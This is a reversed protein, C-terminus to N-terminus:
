LVGWVHGAVFDCTKEDKFAMDWSIYKKMGKPLAHYHRIKTVPIINGDAPAPRQQYLSTFTRPAKAKIKMMRSKSHRQPWLAAGIERKDEPVSNGEEFLAPLVVVTWEDGDRAILRGALDDEHWRTLTLLQQSDNHLRSEVEDVYWDWVTQRQTESHAAQHGKIPDDVLAHDLTKGTIAGSVGVSLSYGLHEQLEYFDSRNSLREEGKAAGIRTEPFLEKYEKSAITRKNAVNFGRSLGANYSMIGIKTDPDRGHLFAPLKRSALESKGHQPPMCLILKKIEGRAYKDLYEAVIRHHANIKYDKKTYATFGILHERAHDKIEENILAELEIQEKVSLSM